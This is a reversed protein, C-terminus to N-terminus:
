EVEDRWKRGEDTIWIYDNVHHMPSYYEIIGKIELSRYLRRIREGTKSVMPLNDAAEIAPMKIFQKGVVLWYRNDNRNEYIWDFLAAEDSTLNFDSAIKQNIYISKKM